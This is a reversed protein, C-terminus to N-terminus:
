HWRSGESVCLVFLFILLGVAAVIGIALVVAIVAFGRLVVRGAESLPTESGPKKPVLSAIGVAGLVGVVLLLLLKQIPEIDIVVAVHLAGIVGLIGLVSGVTGSRRLDRRAHSEAAAHEEGVKPAGSTPEGCAYCFRHEDGVITRCRRCRLWIV